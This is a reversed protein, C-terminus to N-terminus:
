RPGIVGTFFFVLYGAGWVALVVYAGVLWGPIAPASEGSGTEELKRNSELARRM